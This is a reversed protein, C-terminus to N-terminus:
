TGTGRACEVEDLREALADIVCDCDARLREVVRLAEALQEHEDEGALYTERLETVIATALGDGVDGREVEELLGDPYYTNALAILDRLTM